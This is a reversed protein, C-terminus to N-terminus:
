PFTYWTIVQTSSFYNQLPYPNALSKFQSSYQDSLYVETDAAQIASGPIQLIISRNKLLKAFFYKEQTSRAIQTQESPPLAVRFSENSLPSQLSFPSSFRLLLTLNAESYLPVLTFKMLSNCQNSCVECALKANVFFNSPCASV